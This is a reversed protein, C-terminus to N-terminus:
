GRLLVAIIGAPAIIFLYAAFWHLRHKEVIATLAVLAAFGVVAAVGGALLNRTTMLTSWGADSGDLVLAGLIAPVSLLFSFRAADSRRVGLLLAAAITMGSRSIGPLLATAQAVGILVAIGFPIALLDFRGEGKVRRTVLLVGGTVMFMCSAMLPSAFAEDLWDKFFVGVLGAPVTALVLLMGFRLGPGWRRQILEKWAAQVIQAIDRRYFTLVALLTGVHVVIDFELHDGEFGLAWQLMVLHGSSSVPLFEALGQAVALLVVDLM